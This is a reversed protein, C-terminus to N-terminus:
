GGVIRPVLIIQEATRDFKDIRVPTGETVSFATAGGRRASAFIREAEAVAAEAEADHAEVLVRDWLYTTDGESSLVRLASM